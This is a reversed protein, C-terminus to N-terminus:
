TIKVNFSGVIGNIKFQMLANVESTPDGSVYMMGSPSSAYLTFHGSLGNWTSVYGNGTDYFSL